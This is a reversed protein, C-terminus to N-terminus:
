PHSGVTTVVPDHRGWIREVKGDKIEFLDVSESYYGNSEGLWRITVDGKASRLHYFTWTGSESVEDATAERDSEEAHVIPTGIMDSLDGVIDEIQVSECCDQQHYMGFTRGNLTVFHIEDNWASVTISKFVFGKLDAFGKVVRDESYNLRKFNYNLRKFHREIDPWVTEDGSKALAIWRDLM